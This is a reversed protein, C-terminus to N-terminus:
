NFKCDTCLFLVCTDKVGTLFKTHLQSTCLHKNNPKFIFFYRIGFFFTLTWFHASRTVVSVMVMHNYLKKKFTFMDTPPYIKLENWLKWPWWPIKFISPVFTWLLLDVHWPWCGSGKKWPWLWMYMDFCSKNFPIKRDPGYKKM